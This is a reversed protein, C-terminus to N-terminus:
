WLDTCVRAPSSTRSGRGCRETRRHQSRCGGQASDGALTATAHGFSYWDIHAMMNRPSSATPTRLRESPFVTSWAHRYGHLRRQPSASSRISGHPGRKAIPLVAAADAPNLPPAAPLTGSTAAALDARLRTGDLTRGAVVSSLTLTDTDANAPAAVSYHQMYTACLTAADLTRLFQLGAEV